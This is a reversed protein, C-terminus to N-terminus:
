KLCENSFAERIDISRKLLGIELYWDHTAQLEEWPRMWGYAGHRKTNDDEWDLSLEFYGQAFQLDKVQEPIFQKMNEFTKPWNKRDLTWATVKQMARCYARAVEPRERLLKETTATILGDYYGRRPGALVRYKAGRYEASYVQAGWSGLADIQGRELAAPGGMQVPVIKVDDKTLGAQKLTYLLDFYIYNDLSFVGITKGKLDKATKIPSADHVILRYGSRIWEGTIVNTGQHWQYIGKIPVNNNARAILLTGTSVDQFDTLGSAVANVPSIGAGGPVITVELGEEKYFGEVIGNYYLAYSPNGMTPVTVGVKIKVPEKGAARGAPVALLAAAALGALVAGSWRIGRTRM